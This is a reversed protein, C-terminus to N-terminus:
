NQLISNEKNPLNYQKAKEERRQNQAIRYWGTRCLAMMDQVTGDHGIRTMDGGTTDDQVIMTERREGQRTKDQQGHELAIM